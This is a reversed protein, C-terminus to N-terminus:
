VSHCYQSSGSQTKIYELRVLKKLIAIETQVSDYAKKNKSVLIRKLKVKDMVKMAYVQQTEKDVCKKV